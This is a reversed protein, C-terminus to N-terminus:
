RDARFWGKSIRVRIMEQEAVAGAIDSRTEVSVFTPINDAETTDPIHEEEEPDDSDKTAFRNQRTTEAEAAEEETEREYMIDDEDDWIPEPKPDNPDYFIPDQPEKVEITPGKSKLMNQPPMQEENLTVVVATLYWTVDLVEGGVVKVANQILEEAQRRWPTAIPDECGATEGRRWPQHPIPHPLEEESRVDKLGEVTDPDIVDVDDFHIDPTPGAPDSVKSRPRAAVAFEVSSQSHTVPPKALFASCGIHLLFVLLIQSITSLCVM